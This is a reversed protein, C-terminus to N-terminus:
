NLVFLDNEWSAYSINANLHILNLYFFLVFSPFIGTRRARVGCASLWTYFEEFFISRGVVDNVLFRQCKEEPQVLAAKPAEAEAAARNVQWGNTLAYYSGM